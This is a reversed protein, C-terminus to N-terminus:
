GNGHVGIATFTQRLSRPPIASTEAANDLFKRMKRVEVWTKSTTNTGAGDFSRRKEFSLSPGGAQRRAFCLCPRGGRLFDVIVLGIESRSWM